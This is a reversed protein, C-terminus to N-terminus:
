SNDLRQLATQAQVSVFGMVQGLDDHLERGIREREELVALLQQQEEIQKRETINLSYEIMQMVEGSQDLIPFGHVEYHQPQGAKDIHIHELVVPEKMKQVELLPCQQGLMECPQDNGQVLAHCTASGPLPGGHAAENAM